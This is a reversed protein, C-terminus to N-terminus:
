GAAKKVEALFLFGPGNGEPDASPIIATGDTCVLVFGPEGYAPDWDLGDNEADSLPRVLAITKGVLSGFESQIYDVTQQDQEAKATM